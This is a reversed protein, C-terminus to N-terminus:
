KLGPRTFLTRESEEWLSPREDDFRKLIAKMMTERLFESKNRVRFRDCYIGLARLERSNLMVSLRNDRKLKDEKRNAKKLYLHQFEFSFYFFM